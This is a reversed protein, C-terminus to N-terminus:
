MVAWGGGLTRLDLKQAAHRTEDYMLNGTHREREAVIRRHRQQRLAQENRGHVAHGGCPRSRGILIRRRKWGIADVHPLLCTCRSRPHQICRLPLSVGPLWSRHLLHSTSVTPRLAHAPRNAAHNRITRRRRSPCWAKRGHVVIVLMTVENVPGALRNQWLARSRGPSSARRSRTGSVEKPGLRRHTERIHGPGLGVAFGPSAIADVPATPLRAGRGLLLCLRARAEYARAM